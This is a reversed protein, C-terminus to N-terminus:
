SVKEWKNNRYRYYEQVTSNVIVLNHDDCLYNFHSQGKFLISIVAKVLKGEIRCKDCNGYM